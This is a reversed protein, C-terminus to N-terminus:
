QRAVLPLGVVMLIFRNVLLITARTRAFFYALAWWILHSVLGEWPYVRLSAREQKSM